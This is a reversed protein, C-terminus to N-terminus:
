RGINRVRSGGAIIRATVEGPEYMNPKIAPLRPIDRYQTVKDLVQRSRDDEIGSHQM